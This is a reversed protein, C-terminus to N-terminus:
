IKGIKWVKVRCPASTIHPNSAIGFPNCSYQSRETLYRDCSQIVISNNDYQSAIVGARETNDAFYGPVGWANNYYIEVSCYVIYGAFPNAEVYRSNNTINAPNSDSGGNPYIITFGGTDGVAAQVFATTAIKTSNDGSTPTPATPTGTFAPSNIPAYTTGPSINYKSWHSTDSSPATTSTVDSTCAYLNGSYRVICGAYYTQGSDWQFIWGKQAYFAINSLMNLAGNFDERKPAKGGRGLPIATVPPFGLTQSFRGDSPTNTNPPTTKDGSQAFPTTILTPNTAM